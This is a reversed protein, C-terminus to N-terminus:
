DSGVQVWYTDETVNTCHEIDWRLNPKFYSYAVDQVLPPKNSSAWGSRLLQELHVPADSQVRALRHLLVRIPSYPDTPATLTVQHIIDQQTQTTSSTLLKEHREQNFCLVNQRFTQLDRFFSHIMRSELSSISTCIAKRDFNGWKKAILWLINSFQPRCHDIDPWHVTKLCHQSIHLKLCAPHALDCPDDSM